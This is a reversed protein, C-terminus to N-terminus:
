AHIPRARASALATKGAGRSTKKQRRWEQFRNILYNQAVDVGALVFLAPEALVVGAAALTFASLKNWRKWIELAGKKKDSPSSSEFNKAM